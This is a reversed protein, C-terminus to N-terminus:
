RKEQVPDNSSFQDAHFAGIGNSLRQMPWDSSRVKWAGWLYSCGCRKQVCLV